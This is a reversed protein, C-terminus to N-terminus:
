LKSDIILSTPVVRAFEGSLSALSVDHIIQADIFADSDHRQKGFTAIADAALTVHFDLNSAMRCSTSVCHDTTMGCM